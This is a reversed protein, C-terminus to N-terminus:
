EIEDWSILQWSGGPGSSFVMDELGSEYIVEANNSINIKYGTIEHASMNNKLNILGNPAYVIAGIANNSLSIAPVAPNLSNSTSLILIYSGEVGSGGLLVNNNITINGDAILVGSSVGYGEDLGVIANNAIIIDGTVYITATINLNAGGNIILDKPDSLTGIQVLGLSDSGAVVYDTAIIGGSTAEVKWEDIQAQSIPFEEPQIEQIQTTTSEANCNTSHGGSVYTLEGGITSNECSYAFADEGIILGKIKNGNNAVIITNDIYGKNNSNTVDGNSFVNGKIRANNGMEMGGDGVQAGYFFSAGQTSVAYNAQIKRIRDDSNGESIIMKTNTITESINVSSETDGIIISYSLSSLAPDERLRLLADEIGAEAVYFSKSSKIINGSMEQEGAILFVISAIISMLIILILITIFIAVFGKKNNKKM